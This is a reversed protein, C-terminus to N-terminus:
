TVCVSSHFPFALFQHYSTPPFTRISLYQPVSTLHHPVAVGRGRQSVATAVSGVGAIAVIGVFNAIVVFSLSVIDFQFYNFPNM